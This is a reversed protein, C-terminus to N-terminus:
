EWDPPVCLWCTCPWQRLRLAARRRWQLDELLRDLLWDQPDSLDASRTERVLRGATAHVERDEMAQIWLPARRPPLRDARKAM